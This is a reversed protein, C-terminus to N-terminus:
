CIQNYIIQGDFHPGFTPKVIEEEELGNEKLCKVVDSHTGDNM